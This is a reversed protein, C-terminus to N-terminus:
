IFFFYLSFVFARDPNNFLKCTHVLWVLITKIQYDNTAIEFKGFGPDLESYSILSLFIISVGFFTIGLLTKVVFLRFSGYKFM